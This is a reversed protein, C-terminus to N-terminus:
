LLSASSRDHGNSARANRFSAQALQTSSRWHRDQERQEREHNEAKAVSVKIATIGRRDSCSRRSVTSRHSFPNPAIPLASLPPQAVRRRRQAAGTNGFSAM